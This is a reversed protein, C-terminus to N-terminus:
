SLKDILAVANRIPGTVVVGAIGRDAIGAIVVSQKRAVSRVSLRHAVSSRVSPKHGASNRVIQGIMAVSRVIQATTAGQRVNAARRANRVSLPPRAAILMRQQRGPAAILGRRVSRSNLLTQDATVGSLAIM